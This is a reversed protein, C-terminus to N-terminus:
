VRNQPERPKRLGSTTSSAHTTAAWSLLLDRAGDFTTIPTQAPIPAGRSPEEWQIKRTSIGSLYFPSVTFVNPAIERLKAMAHVSSEVGGFTEITCELGRGIRDYGLPAIQVAVHPTLKDLPAMFSM